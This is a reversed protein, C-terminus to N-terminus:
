RCVCIFISCCQEDTRESFCYKGIKKPKQEQPHCGHGHFGLVVAKFCDRNFLERQGKPWGFHDMWLSLYRSGAISAISQVAACRNCLAGCIYPMNEYEWDYRARDLLAPREAEDTSRSEM